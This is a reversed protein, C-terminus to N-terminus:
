RFKKEWAELAGAFDSMSAFRRAPDKELARRV